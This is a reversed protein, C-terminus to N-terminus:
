WVRERHYEGYGLLPNDFESARLGSGPPGGRLVLAIGALVLTGGPLLWKSPMEDLVLAALLAACIPTLLRYTTTLVPALRRSAAAYGITPVTTSVAGLAAFVLLIRGNLPTADPVRM